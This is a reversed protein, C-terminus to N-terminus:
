CQDEKLDQREPWPIKHEALLDLAALHHLMAATARAGRWNRENHRWTTRSVGILEAAKGQTLDHRHRFTVLRHDM